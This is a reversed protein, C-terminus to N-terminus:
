SAGLSRAPLWGTRPERHRAFHSRHRVSWVPSGACGPLESMRAELTDAHVLLDGVCRNVYTPLDELPDILALIVQPREEKVSVFRMQPRTVAECLAVADNKGRKGSLRYPIVFKPAILKVDHGFRRFQRAWHHAGTCAKLGIRCLPLRAILAPLPERSVKPKVRVPKGKDDVGHGAFVNKALDIGVTIRSM